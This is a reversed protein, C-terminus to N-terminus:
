YSPPRKFDTQQEMWDSLTESLQQCRLDQSCERPAAQKLIDAVTDQSTANLGAYWSERVPYGEQKLLLYLAKFYVHDPSKQAALANLSKDVLAYMTDTSHFAISNHLILRAFKSAAELSRYNKGIADRRQILEYSQIFSLQRGAKTQVEIKATDFIVTQHASKQQQSYRRMAVFLGAEDSLLQLKQFSDGSITQSLVIVRM